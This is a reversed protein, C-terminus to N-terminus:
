KKLVAVAAAFDRAELTGPPLGDACLVLAASPELAGALEGISSPNQASPDRLTVRRM